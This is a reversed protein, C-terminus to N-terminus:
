GDDKHRRSKEANTALLLMGTFLGGEIVGYILSSGVPQAFPGWNLLFMFTFLLPFAIVAQQWNELAEWRDRM